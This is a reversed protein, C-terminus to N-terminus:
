NYSTSIGRLEENKIQFFLGSAYTFTLVGGQYMQPQLLVVYLQWANLNAAPVTCLKKKDIRILLVGLSSGRSLEEHVVFSHDSV